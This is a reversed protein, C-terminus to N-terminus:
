MLSDLYLGPNSKKRHYCNDGVMEFWEEQVTKTNEIGHSFETELQKSSSVAANRLTTKVLKPTIAGVKM